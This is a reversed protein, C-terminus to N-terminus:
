LFLNPSGDGSGGLWFWLMEFTKLFFLEKFTVKYFSLLLAATRAVPDSTLCPLCVIQVKWNRFISCVQSKNSPTLAALLLPSSGTPCIRARGGGGILSSGLDWAAWCRGKTREILDTHTHWAHRGMLWIEQTCITGLLCRFVYSASTNFFYSFYSLVTGKKSTHNWTLETKGQLHLQGSTKSPLGNSSKSDSAGRATHRGTSSQRQEGTWSQGFLPETAPAKSRSRQHQAKCLQIAPDWGSLQVQPKEMAAKCRNGSGRKRKCAWGWVSFATILHLQYSWIWTNCCLYISIKQLEAKVLKVFEILSFFM